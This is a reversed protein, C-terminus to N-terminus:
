GSPVIYGLAYGTLPRTRAYVGTGERSGSADTDGEITLVQDGQVGTVIGCHGKHYILAKSKAPDADHIFVSGPVPTQRTMYFADVWMHCAVARRPLPNAGGVAIAAQKYIWFVFCACWPYPAVKPDLGISRIYEDVEPGRHRGGSERVGVQTQAIRVVEDLFVSM